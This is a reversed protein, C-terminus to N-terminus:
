YVLAYSSDQVLPTDAPFVAWGPDEDWWKVYGWWVSETRPVTWQGAATTDDWGAADKNRGISIYRIVSTNSQQEINAIGFPYADGAKIYYESDYVLEGDLWLATRADKSNAASDYAPNTGVSAYLRFVHWATDGYLNKRRLTWPIGNPIVEGIKFAGEPTTYYSNVSDTYVGKATAWGILAGNEKAGVM